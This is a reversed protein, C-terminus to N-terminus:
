WNCDPLHPSPSFSVSGRKPPIPVLVRLKNDHSLSQQQFTWRPSCLQYDQCTGSTNVPETQPISKWSKTCTQLESPKWDVSVPIFFLCLLSHIIDYWILDTLILHQFIVNNKPFYVIKPQLSAQHCWHFGVSCLVSTCRVIVWRCSMAPLLHLRFCMRSSTSTLEWSFIRRMSLNLHETLHINISLVQIRTEQQITM